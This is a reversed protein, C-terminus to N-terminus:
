QQAIFIQTVSTSRSAAVNDPYIWGISLSLVSWLTCMTTRVNDYLDFLNRHGRMLRRATKRLSFALNDSFEDLDRPRM